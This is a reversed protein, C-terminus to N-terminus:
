DSEDLEDIIRLQAHLRELVQAESAGPMRLLVGQRMLHVSRDWLDLGLALRDEPSMARADEIEERELDQVSLYRPQEMRHM